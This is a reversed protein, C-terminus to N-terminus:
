RDIPAIPPMLLPRSNGDKPGLVVESDAAPVQYLEHGGDEGIKILDFAEIAARRLSEPTRGRDMVIYGLRARAAFRRAQALLVGREASSLERGESLAVITRV